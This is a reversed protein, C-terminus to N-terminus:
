VVGIGNKLSEVSELSEVQAREFTFFDDVDFLWEPQQTPIFNLLGVLGETSCFDWLKESNAVLDIGPENRGLHNIVDMLPKIRQAHLDSSVLTLSQIWNEVFPKVSPKMSSTANQQM